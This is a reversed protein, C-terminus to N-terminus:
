VQKEGLKLKRFAQVACAPQHKQSKGVLTKIGRIIEPDQRPYKHIKCAVKGIINQFVFYAFYANKIESYRKQFKESSVAINNVKDM